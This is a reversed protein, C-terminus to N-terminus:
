KYKKDSTLGDEDMTYRIRRHVPKLGARVAPLERGVIVSMAYEIYSKEMEDVLNSETIVPDPFRIDEPNYSRNHAM